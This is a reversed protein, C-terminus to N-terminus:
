AAEAERAAEREGRRREARREVLDYLVPLVYLTLVTASVLGGIVVIALPRQTEAGIEKSLAAPMLGLAALLATMLVARLRAVAGGEVAEGVSAGAERRADVDSLLLVGNLVAQGILAIFGVAASVSLNVGTLKLALVGGVLAFPINALILLASRLRGFAELLLLFILFISLPIVIALRRMARQQNEFEGGWTAVYGPPLQVAKGVAAQADRVFGGLDRGRVNMKIGIFRQNAERNVAARGEGVRVDALMSLPIRAGEPTPVTVDRIASLERRYASPLRVVVGFRREGQWLDTAVKGGLATEIAEDVDAVAVGYRAIRARDIAIQVQPLTGAQIVALDAVGPVSALAQQASAALKDLEDLDDGFLKLAVQGKLGSIGEEVNDKIPQSFNYDIGPYQRLRAEMREVLAEPDRATTWEARPKLDVFLQLNNVPAPDTGDEPRGLQAVVTKVEPFELLAGRIRPAMRQAEELSISAPLTATVWLSGENLEPLFESGVTGLVALAVALSAAGLGLVTWRRRLALHLTPRYLREAWRVVPSTREKEKRLSLACLVPVLTLSALLAGVLASAVTNAMPAFIRGEVRELTFIPVYAVIIIGLSFLTPRAVEHVARRVVDKLREGPAAHRHRFVNEVMVVAGDVIIGFDVAGLSLLNASLHRAKLYLFSGLLSLPIVSAVVLAGRWSLLFLFVIATVLLAGEALNHLVTALTRDVLTTRDYYPVLRVGPPLIGGNLQAVKEHIASLVQAPNEGKRLLVIGQVVEDQRDKSVAGRRPVEGVSVRALDGVTLPTGSKSAVAVNKVDEASALTGLGRIVLEEPGRRLYNGGANANSRQLAEFVQRLTVGYSKLRAPDVEVQFQKQSGGFSVVDAVGPVQRFQRELVWDQLERLAMPSRPEGKRPDSELVYRYIEGIPTYLPGLAPTVGDPVEVQRLRESVQARAFYNDVGDEFTLTVVSLGYISVSRMRSLQPVGNLEKEVPLTVQREVEEPAHGPFLTIVQVQTDTVDPFAEIPLQRFAWFGALAATLTLLLVAGRHELSWDVLRGLM